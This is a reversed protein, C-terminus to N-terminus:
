RNNYLKVEGPFPIGIEGGPQHLKTKKTIEVM